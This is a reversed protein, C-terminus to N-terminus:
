AEEQPDGDETPPLQLIPGSEIRLRRIINRSATVRELTDRQNREEQTQEEPNPPAEQEPQGGRVDFLFGTDLRSAIERLANKLETRLENRRGSEIKRLDGQFSKSVEDVGKAIQSDIYEQIGGAVKDPMGDVKTVERQLKIIGLVREYLTALREIATVIMVAVAPASELVVTLDSSSISKIKFDERSGTAIENFVSFIRDLKTLEKGFDDLENNVFHRPIAIAFEYENFALTDQEVKFYRSAAVYEDSKKYLKDVSDRLLRIKELASAPTLDNGAFALEIRSRLKTGLLAQSGMEELVTTLSPPYDNFMSGSLTEFIADRASVAALQAEESPANVQQELASILADLKPLIEDQDLEWFIDGIVELATEARM